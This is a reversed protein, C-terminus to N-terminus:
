SLVILLPIASLSFITLSALKSPLRYNLIDGDRKVQHCKGVSVSADSCRRGRKTSGETLLFFSPFPSVSRCGSSAAVRLEAELFGPRISQQRTHINHRILPPRLSGASLDITRRQGTFFEM